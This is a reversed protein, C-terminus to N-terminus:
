SHKYYALTDTRPLGKWALSINTPLALLRNLTSYRFPAESPYAGAKGVFMLSPQFAQWPYVTLSIVFMRLNCGYFTNSCRALLSSYKDM